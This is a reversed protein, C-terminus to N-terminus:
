QSELNKIKEELQLISQDVKELRDKEEDVLEQQKMAQEFDLGSAGSAKRYKELQAKVSQRRSRSEKLMSQLEELAQRKDEPLNQMKMESIVDNLRKIRRELEHRQEKNFMKDQAADKLSDRDEVLKEMAASEGDDILQEIKESLQRYEEQIAKRKEEELKRREQLEADEKEFVMKRLRSIQQRVYKLNDRGLEKERIQDQIADIKKKADVPNLEGKQFEEAFAKIQEEFDGLNEHQVTKQKAREKKREKEVKKVKDWSESLKKRTKTFAQTNLTLIKAFSQLMKILERLEYLPRPFRESNFNDEVFQDVDESFLESIKKILDKRRPFIEDGVKSLRQFFQNKQRIRIETRMLEKRLSNVRTAYANLVNLEKQITRYDESNEQLCYALEEMKPEPSAAIIAQMGQAEEELAKIAMEIQEAAFASQEDFIEKLRIAEQSIESYQEVFSKRSAPMLNKDKFFDICLKRAAWFNKFNPSGGQALSKEMFLLTIHIKEDVREAEELTKKLADLSQPAENLPQNEQNENKAAEAMPKDSAEVVPESPNPENKEDKAAEAMPKDSAEVVPESPNPENKEAPPNNGQADVIEESSPQSNQEQQTEEEREVTENKEMAKEETM